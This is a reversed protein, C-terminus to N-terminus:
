PRGIRPMKMRPLRPMITRRHGVAINRVSGGNFHCGEITAKGTSRFHVGTVTANKLYGGESFVITAKAM